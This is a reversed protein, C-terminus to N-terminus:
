VDLVNGGSTYLVRGKKGELPESPLVPVGGDSGTSEWGQLGHKVGEKASEVAAEMKELMRKEHKERAKEREDESSEEEAKKLCIAMMAWLTYVADNGANHLHWGMLDFEFLIHGLSRSNAEKTYVRFLSATDVTDAICTFSTISIGLQKLYSIDQNIDQGVLVVKRKEIKDKMSPSSNSYPPSFCNTIAKGIQAFPTVDSKHNNFEFKDPCGEVFRHNVHHMEEKILFHRARIANQWGSGDSGPALSTLDRTDLTAIGVETIPRHQEEWAEVDISIFIVDNKYSNPVPSSISLDSLSPTGGNQIPSKPSDSKQDATPAIGLYQQTRVLMRVMDQRKVLNDSQRKARKARSQQRSAEVALEMKEKFAELTRTSPTEM